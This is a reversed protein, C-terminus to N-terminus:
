LFFSASCICCYANCLHSVTYGSNLLVYQAIESTPDLPYKPHAAPLLPPLPLPPRLPLLATSITGAGDPLIVRQSESRCMQQRHSVSCQTKESIELM